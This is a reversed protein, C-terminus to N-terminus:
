SVQLILVDVTEVMQVQRLDLKGAGDHWPHIDTVTGVRSFCSYPGIVPLGSNSTM